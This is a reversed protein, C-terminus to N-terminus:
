PVRVVPQMEQTRPNEDMAGTDIRNWEPPCHVPDHCTLVIIQPKETLSSLYRLLHLMNWKDVEAGEIVVLAGPSLSYGVAADFVCREGGSLTRRNVSSREERNWCVSLGNEDDTIALTGIPLIAKSRGALLEAAKNVVAKQAEIAAALAEKAATEQESAKEAAVRASEMHKQTAGYEILPKQKARIETLRTELGALAATDKQDPGPGIKELRGVAKKAEQIKGKLTAIQDRFKAAADQVVSLQYKADDHQGKWTQYEGDAKAYAADDTSLLGRLADMVRQLVGTEDVIKDSISMLDSVARTITTQAEEPLDCGGKVPKDKEGLDKLAHRLAKEKSESEKLLKQAEALKKEMDDVSALQGVLGKRARDNAEGDAVRQQVDKREAEIEKIEQEIRTLDGTPRDQKALTLTLQEVAKEAVQRERTRANKDNRAKEEDDALKELTKEDSVMRLLMRRQETPPSSFFLPIDVVVPEKGLAMALMGEAANRTAETGDISIREQLTRGQTWTREIKKGHITAGCTMPSGSANLFVTKVGDGPIYGLCALQIAVAVTSKGAGNPGVILNRQELDMCFTRGRINSGNVQTIM